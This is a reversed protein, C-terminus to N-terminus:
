GRQRLGASSRPQTSCATPDKAATHFMFLRLNWMSAAAEAHLVGAHQPSTCSSSSSEMQELRWPQNSPTMTLFMLLAITELVWPQRYM